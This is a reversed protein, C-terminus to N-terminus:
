YFPLRLFVDIAITGLASSLLICATAIAALGFPFGKRPGYSNDRSEIWDPIIQFLIASSVLLSLTAGGVALMALAILRKQFVNYADVLEDYQQLDEKAPPLIERELRRERLRRIFNESGVRNPTYGFNQACVFDAAFYGLLLAVITLVRQPFM